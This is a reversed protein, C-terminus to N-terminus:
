HHDGALIVKWAGKSLGYKCLNEKEEGQRFNRKESFNKTFIKALLNENKRQSFKRSFIKM